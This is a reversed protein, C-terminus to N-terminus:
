GELERHWLTDVVRAVATTLLRRFTSSPLDLVEAARELTPAPSLYARYLVRALKRDAPTPGLAAAETVIQQLAAVREGASADKGARDTVLRSRLLPNDRLRDPRTVDRLARKVAAGFEAEGLVLLAPAAAPAADRVQAGIEQASLRAVWAAPPVVRWDHGFVAYNRGGVSFDAAPVRRQDAYECVQAWEDPHAFPVLTVALGATGLYHRALQTTILSQVPSVSQYAQDSMWFRVLTVREGPRLPAHLALQRWAAAVAPDAGRDAPAIDHVALLCMVGTLTGNGDRVVLWADPQQAFWHRALAASDAGEHRDVLASIEEGDGPSAPELRGAEVGADPAQLFQRLETHLFMLDMLVGAHTAPDADELRALYHLRARTHVDVYRDPHRWRLDSALVNRALDHPYLGLPGPDVFPLGRMWGFLEAADPLDLLAGLLPETVVRVQASAELAQRHTPTPADRVLTGLLEGIVDASRDPAFTGRDKLVEGVLALALPHGHTFDVATDHLSEQVGRGSLYAHCESRSLNQLNIVRILDAWGPDTRWGASPPRQGAIILLTDAPLQPAIEERIRADSDALLEYTDLLVVTRPRHADDSLVPTLRYRLADVTPPTDRADIALVDVGAEACVAGFRRLLTSKGVGAPGHVFLVAVMPDPSAILASFMELEAVRGVFGRRRAAAIRDAMRPAM